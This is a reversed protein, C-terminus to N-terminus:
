LHTSSLHAYQGHIKQLAGLKVLQELHHKIKQPSEDTGIVKAIERLTYDAPNLDGSEIMRMLQAQIPHVWITTTIREKKM